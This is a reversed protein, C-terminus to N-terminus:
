SRPFLLNRALGHAALAAEDGDRQERDDAAQREEMRCRDVLRSWSEAEVRKETWAARRKEYEARAVDLTKQNNHLGESLRDLFARFNQLKVADITGATQSRHVYEERYSKLQGLQRELEAVKRGADAMARSLKTAASSAIHRIPEFRQSKKM